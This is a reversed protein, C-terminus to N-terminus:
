VMLVSIYYMYRDIYAKEMACTFVIVKDELCIKKLNFWCWVISCMAAQVM